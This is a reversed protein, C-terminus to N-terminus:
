YEQNTDLSTSRAIAWEKLNPSLVSTLVDFSDGQLNEIENLTMRSAADMVSACVMGWGQMKKAATTGHHHRFEVTQRYFFSHLNLAHYRSHHYKDGRESFARYGGNKHACKHTKGYTTCPKQKGPTWGYLKRILDMKFTKFSHFNYFDGCAESYHNNRRSRAVLRFMGDEVKSYLKCLKFLDFWGFDRADVHCHMGCSGNVSAHVERLAQAIENTHEIFRDGSSPNLNLEWGSDPLSGDEVLSDSWDRLTSHMEESDGDSVEIELSIHRKSPNLKFEGLKATHFKLKGSYTCPSGSGCTCCDNCHDCDGCFNDSYHRDGCGECYYCECCDSCNNCNSCQNDTADGCHECHDCHCCDPCRDCLSCVSEVSEGCRQCHRCECCSECTDCNQCISDPQVPEDCATCTVTLGLETQSTDIDPM